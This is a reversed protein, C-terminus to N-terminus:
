LMENCDAVVKEWQQLRELFQSRRELATFSPNGYRTRKDVAHLDADGWDAAALDWQELKEHIEARAAFLSADTSGKTIAKDYEVLARKWDERAAYLDGIGATATPRHELLKDLARQDGIAQYGAALKAWPDNLRLVVLRDQERDFAAPDSAVSLRFHGLHELPGVANTSFQMQFELRTEDKCDVSQKVLYFATHPRSPDGMNWYGTSLGFLFHDAAVRSVEIPRPQTGKVQVTITFRDM